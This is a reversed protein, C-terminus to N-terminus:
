VNIVGKIFITLNDLKMKKKKLEYQLRQLIEKSIINVSIDNQIQLNVKFVWGQNLQYVHLRNFIQKEDLPWDLEEQEQELGSNNLPLISVIGPQAIIVRYFIEQAAEISM